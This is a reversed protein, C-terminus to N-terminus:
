GANLFITRFISCSYRIFNFDLASSIRTMGILYENNHTKLKFKEGNAHNNHTVSFCESHGIQSSVYTLLFSILVFIIELHNAIRVKM